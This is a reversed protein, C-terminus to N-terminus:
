TVRLMTCATWGVQDPDALRVFQVGAESIDMDKGVAPLRDRLEQLLPLPTIM